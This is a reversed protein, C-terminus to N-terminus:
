GDGRRRELMRLVAMRAYVGMEVQEHVLCRDSDLLEASLEVDPNVPGPHMVVAGSKAWEMRERTVGFGRQYEGLSAVLGGRQRELQLRLTYVVDAGHLGSKLEHCVEIGLARSWDPVLSRPGVFVVSAGLRKLLLANSRAVRSHLTDGVIAVRLGEVRGLHHQMTAADLLAQTPHRRRGDGGNIVSARRVARAAREVSGSGAHRMVLYDAGIAEVTRVTEVLTEGKVVSSTGADFRTVLAGCRRAAGEFSLRTRTSAEFFLMAAGRGQLDGCWPDARLAIADDLLGRLERVDLHDLDILHRSPDFGM